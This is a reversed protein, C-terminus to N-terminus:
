KTSYNVGGGGGAAGSGTTQVNKSKFVLPPNKEGKDNTGQDWSQYLGGEKKIGISNAKKVADEEGVANGAVAKFGARIWMDFDNTNSIKIFKGQDNVFSMGGDDRTFQNITGPAIADFYEVATQIEEKTGSHLYGLMRGIEQHMAKNDKNDSQWQAQQPSPQYENVTQVSEKKNYRARLQNRMFDLSDKQQEKTFNPVLSGSNDKAPGMYINHVPDAKQEEESYVFNYPNGDPATGMSNTLVSLRTWVNTFNQEISKNEYQQFDFIAKSQLIETKAEAIESELKAKTAISTKDTKGKLAKIQTEKNAIDANIAAEERVGSLVDSITKVEGAVNKRGFSRITEINEGIRANIADLAAESDFRDWKGQLLGKVTTITATKNPKDSLVYVEKGDVIKKEMMAMSVRGTAPDIYPQSQSFNGFGEIIEMSALEWEQSDDANRRDMKEKYTAQYDKLMGFLNETDDVVNQRGVMYDALKLQGSKLLQDQMRLYQSASDGFKIGMTRASENDGTPPNSLVKLQDRTAQDLAAKKEERVTAENKLMDTMNKGIEAWNVQSEVERDVYKYYTNAM